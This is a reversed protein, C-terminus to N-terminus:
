ILTCECGTIGNMGHLQEYLRSLINVVSVYQQALSVSAQEVSQAREM